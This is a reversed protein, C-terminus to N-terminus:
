MTVQVTAIPGNWGHVGPDLGLDEGGSNGPHRGVSGEAVVGAIGLTNVDAKGSPDVPIGPTNPADGGTIQEDNAATGADNAYIEQTGERLVGNSVAIFGDHTPLMKAVLSYRSHEASLEFTVSAGPGLLDEAPNKVIQNGEAAFPAAMPKINGGEAVAQLEPSEAAGSQFMSGQGSGHGVALIPTLYTSDSINTVTVEVVKEKNVMDKLKTALNSSMSNMKACGVISISLMIVVTIVIEKVIKGGSISAFNASVHNPSNM